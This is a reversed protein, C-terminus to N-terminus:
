TSTTTVGPQVASPGELAIENLVSVRRPDSLGGPPPQPVSPDRIVILNLSSNLILVQRGTTEPKGQVTANYFLGVAGTIEDDAQPVAVANSFTVIASQLDPNENQLRQKYASRTFSTGNVTISVNQSIFDDFAQDFDAQSTASFIDTIHEEAYPVLSLLVPGPGLSVSM